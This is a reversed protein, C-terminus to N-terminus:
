WILLMYVYIYIYVYMSQPQRSSDVVQIGFVTASSFASVSHLTSVSGGSSSLYRITNDSWDTFYLTNAELVIGFPHAVGAQALVVRNSGDVGSREVKDLNADAWYLTQSTIDLTLANPWVLSTNHIVTRSTGDMSAKEIRGVDGWDTFYM